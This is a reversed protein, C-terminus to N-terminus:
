VDTAGMLFGNITSKLLNRTLLIHRQTMMAIDNLEQLYLGIRIREEIPPLFFEEERFFDLAVRRQGASGQMWYEALRRFTISHTLHFLFLRDREDKSRLVIFETSGFGVPNDLTQVLAGKGNEMCPTIKAFLIDGQMFPTYGKSVDSYLRNSQKLINGDESVDEMAIFSVYESKVAARDLRPNIVLLESLRMCQTSDASKVRRLFSSVITEKVQKVSIETSIWNEIVEDAAWLIEAMRKQRELSPLSFRYDKLATWSTRPSLSGASTRLAYEYFSDSLCIFPLLEPMLVMPNKSEFVLIDGSCIGYFEAFAVKRQYARRKAFLTQGPKFTKTFSTGADINDWRRIHLCEPIMHDLGVVRDLKCKDVKSTTDNMCNVVSGLTVLNPNNSMLLM